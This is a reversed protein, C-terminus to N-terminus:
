SQGFSTVHGFRLLIPHPLIGKIPPFQLTFIYSIRMLFPSCIIPSIVFDVVNTFFLIIQLIHKERRINVFCPFLFFFNLIGVVVKFLLFFHPPFLSQTVEKQEENSQKKVEERTMCLSYYTMPFLLFFHEWSSQEGQMGLVSAMPPLSIAPNYTGDKLSM